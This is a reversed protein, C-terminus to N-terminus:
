AGEDAFINLGVIEIGRIEEDLAESGPLDNDLLKGGVKLADGVNLVSRGAFHGANGADDLNREAGTVLKEAFATELDATNGRDCGCQGRRM